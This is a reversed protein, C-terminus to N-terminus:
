SHLPYGGAEEYAILLNPLEGLKKMQQFKVHAAPFSLKLGEFGDEQAESFLRRVERANRLRIKLEGTEHVALHLLQRVEKPLGVWDLGHDCTGNDHLAVESDLPHQQLIRDDTHGIKVLPMGAYHKPPTRGEQAQKAFMLTRARHIGGSEDRVIFAVDGLRDVLERAVPSDPSGLDLAAVLEDLGSNQAQKRTMGSRVTPREGRFRGALQKAPIQRLGAAQLDEWTLLALGEVDSAGLEETIKAWFAEFADSSDFFTRAIDKLGDFSVTSNSSM